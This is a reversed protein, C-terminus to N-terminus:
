EWEKRGRARTYAGAYLLNIGNADPVWSLYEQVISYMMTQMYKKDKASESVSTGVSGGTSFGISESGSSISSVVKGKVTGDSQAVTGVSDLQATQYVAVQYLFEALACFCNKVANIAREDTPYAFRLKDGTYTDLIREARRGFRAFDEASEVTTGLYETQYYTFDAYM